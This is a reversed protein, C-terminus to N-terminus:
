APVEMRRSAAAAGAPVAVPRLWRDLMANGQEAPIITAREVANVFNLCIPGLCLFFERSKEPTETSM